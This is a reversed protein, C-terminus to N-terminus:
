NKTESRIIFTGLQLFYGGRARWQIQLPNIPAALQVPFWRLWLFCICSLSLPPLTSLTGQYRRLHILAWPLTCIKLKLEWCKWQWHAISADTLFNFATNVKFEALQAYSRMSSTSSLKGWSFFEGKAKLQMSCNTSISSSPSHWTSHLVISRAQWSTLLFVNEQVSHWLTKAHTKSFSGIIRSFQDNIPQALNRIRIKFRAPSPHAHCLHPQTGKCLPPGSLLVRLTAICLDLCLKHECAEM